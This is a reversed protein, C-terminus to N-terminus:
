GIVKIWYDGSKKDILVQCDKFFRMGLRLKSTNRIDTYVSEFTIGDIKISNTYGVLEKIEQLGGLTYVDRINEKFEFTELAKKALPHDEPISFTASSGMDIIAEYRHGLVELEIFPSGSKRDIKIRKFGKTNIGESSLTITKAPYDILWNAKRIIPQGILGGFDPVQEKLGVLDGNGAHTDNFHVPGISMRGVIERGMRMKRKSAGTFNETKGLLTDRQIISLQAGTDFLFNRTQGEIAVPLIIINKITTFPLEYIFQKPTISGQRQDRTISCANLFWISFVILILLYKGGRNWYFHM